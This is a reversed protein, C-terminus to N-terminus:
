KGCDAANFDPTALGGRQQILRRADAKSSALKESMIVDMILMDVTGWLLRSDM